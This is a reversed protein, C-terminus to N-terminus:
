FELDSIYQSLNDIYTLLKGLKKKGFNTNKLINVHKAITSEYNAVVVQQM